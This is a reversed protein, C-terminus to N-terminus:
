QNGRQYRWDEAITTKIAVIQTILVQKEINTLFYNNLIERGMISYKNNLFFLVQYILHKWLTVRNVESSTWWLRFERARRPRSRITTVTISKCNGIGDTGIVVSTTLEFGAWALHVRFLMIHYLKDTVQSVPRYNEGTVGTEVVLLVSRRSIASINNFTAHFVM